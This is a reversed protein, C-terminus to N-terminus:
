WVCFPGKFKRDASAPRRRVRGCMLASSTPPRHCNRRDPAIAAPLPACRARLTRRSAPSALSNVGHEGVVSRAISFVIGRRALHGVLNVLKQLVLGPEFRRGGRQCHQSHGQFRQAKAFCCHWPTSPTGFTGAYHVGTRLAVGLQCKSRSFTPGYGAEISSTTRRFM